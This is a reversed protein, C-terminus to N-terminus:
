SLTPTRHFLRVLTRGKSDTNLTAGQPLQGDKLRGLPIKKDSIPTLYRKHQTQCDSNKHISQPSLKNRV